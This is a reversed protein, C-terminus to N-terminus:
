EYLGRGGFMVIRDTIVVREQNEDDMTNNFTTGSAMAHGYRRAPLDEFIASGNDFRSHPITKKRTWTEDNADM